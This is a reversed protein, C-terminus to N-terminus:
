REFPEKTLEAGCYLCNFHRSSIPRQCEPCPKPGGQKAVRGDLKGDKLDIDQIHQLLKEDNYGHEEKLIKWLAETIILLRETEAKLQGVETKAERADARASLGSSSGHINITHNFRNFSFYDM